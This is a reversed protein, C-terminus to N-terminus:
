DQSATVENAIETSQGAELSARVDGSAVEIPASSVSTPESFKFTPVFVAPLGMRSLTSSVYERMYPWTNLPLNVAQFATFLEETMPIATSYSLGFEVTITAVGIEGLDAGAESQVAQEDEVIRVRYGHMILSTTDEGVWRNRTEIRAIFPTTPDPFALKEVRSEGLWLSRLELGDIFDAYEIDSVAM